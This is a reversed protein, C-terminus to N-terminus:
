EGLKSALLVSKYPNQRDFDGPIRVLIPVESDLLRSDVIYGKPLRAHILPLPSHLEMDIYEASRTRFLVFILLMNFNGLVCLSIKVVMNYEFKDILLLDLVYRFLINCLIEFSLYLMSSIRFIHILLLPELESRNLGFSLMLIEIARTSYKFGLFYVVFILIGQTPIRASKNLLYTCNAALISFFVSIYLYVRRRTLRPQRTWPFRSMSLVVAYFMSSYVIFTMPQLIEYYSPKQWILSFLSILNHINFIVLCATIWHQLFNSRAFNEFYTNYIWYVIFQEWLFLTGGDLIYDLIEDSM